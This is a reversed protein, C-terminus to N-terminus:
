SRRAFLALVRAVYQRTERYPPVGGFRQVAGEGANYAALALPLDFRDLLSRLHKIGAEINALPDFPNGVAYLRATEPMLQMLGLAGKPSRARSQYGSEVQIVAKVLRSDVGHKASVRDIMGAYEQATASAPTTLAASAPQPDPYPVEDPTVRVILNENCVIEGGGRLTLVMSDGEFRHGSVSLSRGSAFFVIEAAAPTGSALVVLAASGALLRVKFGM